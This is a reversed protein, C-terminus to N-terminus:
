TTCSVHTRTRAVSSRPGLGVMPSYIVAYPAYTQVTPLREIVQDDGPSCTCEYRIAGVVVSFGNPDCVTTGVTVCDNADAQRVHVVLGTAVLGAVLATKGVRRLATSLM